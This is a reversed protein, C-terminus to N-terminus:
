QIGKWVNRRTELTEKPFDKQCAKCSLKKWPTPDFTRLTRLVDRTSLVELRIAKKLNPAEKGSLNECETMSIDWDDHESSETVFYFLYERIDSLIQFDEKSLSDVRTEKRYRYNRHTQHNVLSRRSLEYYASTLINPIDFDRALSIAVAPDTFLAGVDKPLDSVNLKDKQQTMQLLADKLDWEGLTSPWQAEISSVIRKRVEGLEYKSAM